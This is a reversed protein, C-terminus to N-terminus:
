RTESRERSPGCKARSSARMLTIPWFWFRASARRRASAKRARTMSAVVSLKTNSNVPAVSLSSANRSKIRGNPNASTELVPTAAIARPVLVM